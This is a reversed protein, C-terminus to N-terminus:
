ITEERNKPLKAGHQKLMEVIQEYGNANAVRISYNNFYNAHAGYHLLIKVIETYGLASAECLAYGCDISMKLEKGQALVFEVLEKDGIFCSTNLFTGLSHEDLNKGVSLLIKITELYSSEPHNRIYPNPQKHTNVIVGNYILSQLVMAETGGYCKGFALQLALNNNSKADAGLHILSNVLEPYGCFAAQHLFDNLLQRNSTFRYKEM